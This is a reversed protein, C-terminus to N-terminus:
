YVPQLQNIRTDAEHREADLICAECQQHRATKGDHVFKAPRTLRASRPIHFLTENVPGVVVKTWEQAYFREGTLNNTKTTTVAAWNLAPAVLSSVTIDFTDIDAPVSVERHQVLFTSYGLTRAGDSCTVKSRTQAGFVALCNVVTPERPLPRVDHQIAEFTLPQTAVENVLADYYELIGAQRRTPSLPLPIKITALPEFADIKFTCSAGDSRTYTRERYTDEPSGAQLLGGLRRETTLAEFMLPQRIGRAVGTVVSSVGYHRLVSRCVVGIFLCCSLYLLAKALTDKRNM